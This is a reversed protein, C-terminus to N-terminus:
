TSSSTWLLLTALQNLPERAITRAIWRWGPLLVTATAVATFSSTALICDCIGPLTCSVVISSRVIGISSDTRSTFIVSNNVSTSTTPTIKRNRRLTDAVSM